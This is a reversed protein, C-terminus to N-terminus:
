SPPLPVQTPMRAAEAARRRRTTGLSIVVALTFLVIGIATWLIWTGSEQDGIDAYDIVSQDAARSLILDQTLDEVRLNGEYRTLWTEPSANMRDAETGLPASYRLELRKAPNSFGFEPDPRVISERYTTSTPRFPTLVFLAVDLDEEALVALGSAAKEDAPGWAAHLERVAHACQRPM